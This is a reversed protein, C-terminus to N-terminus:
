NSVRRRLQQQTEGQYLEQEQQQQACMGELAVAHIVGAATNFSNRRLTLMVQRDSADDDVATTGVMKPTGSATTGTRPTTLMGGVTGPRTRRNFLASISSKNSVPTAGTTASGTSANFFTQSTPGSSQGQQLHAASSNTAADRIRQTLTRIRLLSSPAAPRQLHQSSRRAADEEGVCAVESDYEADVHRAVERSHKESSLQKTLTRPRSFSLM